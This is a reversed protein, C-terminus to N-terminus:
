RQRRPRNSRLAALVNAFRHSPRLEIPDREKNVNTVANTYYQAPTTGNPAQNSLLLTSRNFGAALRPIIANTEANGGTAFPGTSNGFVDKANPKPFLGAAGFNLNAQSGVQGQVEGWAGQTDVTLTDTTYKTWVQNVYDTWYKSFWEPNITIGSNPSLARLDQGNNQVILSSWRRGDSATQARLGQCVTALGDARMGSVHQSAGSTDQLTLAVPINSVFDVYSINVFVQASNFTFECFGFNRSYNPDSPNFVSPEVLGPGPNLLFTLPSGQSFWIRGGALRPITATVINGPAGLPISINVPIAQSTSSPSAPYYPTIADSQLLFLAGNNDIAQGTIYAYLDSNSSQNELAIQLTGTATAAQVTSAPRVVARNQLRIPTQKRQGVQQQQHESPQWLAPVTQAIGAETPAKSYISATDASGANQKKLHHRKIISKIRDKLSGFFGM